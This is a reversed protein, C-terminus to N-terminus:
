SFPVLIIGFSSTQFFKGDKWHCYGQRRRRRGPASRAGPILAHEFSKGQFDLNPMGTEIKNPGRRGGLVCSKRGVSFNAIKHLIGGTQARFLVGPPEPCARSLAWPGAPLKSPIKKIKPARFITPFLQTCTTRETDLPALAGAALGRCWRLVEPADPLAAGM